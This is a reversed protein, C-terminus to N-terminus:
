DDAASQRRSTRFTTVTLAAAFLMASALFVFAAGPSVATWLLGAVSSAILNGVSQVTALLGFASGRLQGPAFGLRAVALAATPQALEVWDTGCEGLRRHPRNASRSM